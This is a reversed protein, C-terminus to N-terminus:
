LAGLAENYARKIWEPRNEATWNLIAEVAQANEVDEASMPTVTFYQLPKAQFVPARSMLELGLMGAMAASAMRRLFARRIM